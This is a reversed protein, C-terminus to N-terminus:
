LLYTEIVRLATVKLYVGRGRTVKRRGWLLIKRAANDRYRLVTMVTSIKGFINLYIEVRKRNRTLEVGWLQPHQLVWSV